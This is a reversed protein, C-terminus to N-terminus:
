CRGAGSSLTFFISISPVLGLHYCYSYVPIAVCVQIPLVHPMIIGLLGPLLTGSCMPRLPCRLVQLLLTSFFSDPQCPVM